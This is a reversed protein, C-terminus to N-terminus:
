PKGLYDDAGARVAEVARAISGYATVMVFGTGAHEGRVRALLAMGDGEGLKWDSLVLDTPARALEAKAQPQGAAEAVVYGEAALLGCVLRRQDADDEVVLIREGSM